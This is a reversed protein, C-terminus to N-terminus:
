PKTDKNPLPAADALLRTVAAGAELACAHGVPGLSLYPLGTAQALARCGEAPTIGDVSGSAVVASALLAAPMAQLDDAIDGGALMHSAQTYGAPNVQAMVSQIFAIQEPSAEASLMAAGRKRAMGQPGLTALNHLRDRLRAQQVSPEARAYGQAPSLLTLREVRDPQLRCAAAAMLAGLSHGALAVRHIHLADLWDWLRQAYDRAAPEPMPLAQSAGYGPADWALVRRPLSGGQAALLQALWSASASGIGHLLFLVPARAEGAARWSIAGGPTPQQQLAFADLQQELSM